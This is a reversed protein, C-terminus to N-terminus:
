CLIPIKWNVEVMGKSNDILIGGLMKEESEAFQVLQLYEVRIVTWVESWMRVLKVVFITTVVDVGWVVVLVIFVSIIESLFDQELAIASNQKKGGWLKWAPCTVSETLPSSCVFPRTWAWVWVSIEQSCSKEELAPLVWIVASIPPFGKNERCHGPGLLPAVLGGTVTAFVDPTGM